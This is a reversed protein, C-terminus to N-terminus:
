KTILGQMPPSPAKSFVNSLGIVTYLPFDVLAHMQTQTPRGAQFDGFSKCFAEVHAADYVRCHELGIFYQRGICIIALM